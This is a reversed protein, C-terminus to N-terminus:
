CTFDLWQEAAAKVDRVVDEVLKAERKHGRSRLVQADGLWDTLVVALDTM